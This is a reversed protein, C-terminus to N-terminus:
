EVNIAKVKAGSLWQLDGEVTLRRIRALEDIFAPVFTGPGQVDGRVAAREAAIEFHLLGALVALLRDDEWAALMASVTTGLVCGTGTIQGLLEHGNDVAFTRDGDSVYDTVGTLLVVNRERRALDRVLTAKQAHSLTSSSDVGKQQELAAQGYVTSVEGENGKILDLYGGALITKVAAKRVSTAGAGVPDFVVPRGAANYASLAQLYNAIGDPTVTGMNVVLSGGLRALDPAEEGYNAMIPSAGVALAVNAAFNQVVLNTMNHSLPSASAVAKIVAPVRALIEAVDRLSTGAAIASASSSSSSSVIHRYSTSTRVLELLSRSESEPDPAAVIASVLAVGDLPPAPSEPASQYLVRQINSPKIGGICVTKVRPLHGASALGSLIARLGATGIIHKTNEKTSTAFVTGIGLYDAGDECAKLAEEITSATVGIIADPGLIKRAATLEMDDQGIHVGECGVALAVDVRDNILLPVGAARTIAHLRRANAVLAGTDSTKDRYQVVTVGGRVAAAVVDALDRDGLIAPTSDTVLYLSYDVTPQPM